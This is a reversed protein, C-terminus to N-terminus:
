QCPIEFFGKEWWDQYFNKTWGALGITQFFLGLILWAAFIIVLGIVVSTLISKAQGIKTPNGASTFFMIGGIVITLTAVPLVIKILFFDIVNDLLVFLHCLQCAPQGEGGCPVLGAQSVLPLLLIGLIILILLKQNKIKSKQNKM